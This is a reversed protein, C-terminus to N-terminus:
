QNEVVITNFRTWRSVQAVHCGGTQRDEAEGGGAGRDERQDPGWPQILVAGVHAADLRHHKDEKRKYHEQVAVPCLRLLTTMSWLQWTQETLFIFSKELSRGVQKFIEEFTPRRDPEESWAQKVVQIVDLPSEDVSLIPRCLPPPEKVKSIIEALTCGCLFYSASNSEQLAPLLSHGCVM